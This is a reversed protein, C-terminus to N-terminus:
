IEAPLHSLLSIGVAINDQDHLLVLCSRLCSLTHTSSSHFIAQVLKWTVSEMKLELYICMDPLIRLLRYDHVYDSVFFNSHKRQFKTATMHLLQSEKNGIWSYTNETNCRGNQNGISCPQFKAPHSM